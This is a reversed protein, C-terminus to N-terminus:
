KAAGSKVLSLIDCLRWASVRGLKVPRPYRTGLGQYFSSKSVPIIRLVEELRILRDTPTWEAQKEVDDVGSARRDLRGNNLKFAARANPTGKEVM